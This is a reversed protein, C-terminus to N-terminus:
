NKNKKYVIIGKIMNSLEQVISIEALIETQLKKWDNKLLIDSCNQKIRYIIQYGFLNHYNSKLIKM